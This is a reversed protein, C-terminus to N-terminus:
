DVWVKLEHTQREEVPPLKMYDKYLGKLYLDWCSFTPFKKGEFEVEVPQEFGKKPMKEGIGHLGWTVGGVYNSDRYSYSLALKEIADICKQKGYLKALPILFLKVIKRTLTKGQWLKANCLVLIQRYFACKKYIKKTEKFDDPLGDMPFVDIWLHQTENAYKMEMHSHLDVIKGYPLDLTHFESSQMEFKKDCDCNFQKVLKEYEPRPMCVDIDDDWPIFGKHRIAGLLTGASIYYRYKHTKCYKDFYLLIQLLRERVEAQTLERM